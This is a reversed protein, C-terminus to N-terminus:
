AFTNKLATQLIEKCRIKYINSDPATFCVGIILTDAPTFNFAVNTRKILLHPMTSKDQLIATVTHSESSVYIREFNVSM